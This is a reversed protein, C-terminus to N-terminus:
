SQVFREAHFLLLLIGSKIPQQSENGCSGQCPGNGGMKLVQRENEGEEASAKDLRHIDHLYNRLM